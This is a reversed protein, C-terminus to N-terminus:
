ICIQSCNSICAFVDRERPLAAVTSLSSCLGVLIAEIVTLQTISFPLKFGLYQTGADLEVKGADARCPM